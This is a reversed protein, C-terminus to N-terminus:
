ISRSGNNYVTIIFTRGEYGEDSINGQSEINEINERVKNNGQSTAVMSFEAM